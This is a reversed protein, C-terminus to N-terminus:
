YAGRGSVVAFLTKWLIMLDLALSWNEVYFLDYRVSDEWPLDSRGNIQWLGTMGPKVLLRRRVDAAYERVESPLPPRPGVLAMEGRVVNLLQPLEDISYRRIFRGIRTVRPDNRQKFLVGDADNRDRLDVLRDEADIVMSRFKYVTFPEGHRGIRVQKFMAPGRSTLKVLLGTLLLLPAAIALLLMGGLRDIGAKLLRRAGVFEPEEVHLLPLGAVPRISVRPGAVNTLAPAVILQVGTGELSWALRRLEDSDIDRSETVAVTDAGVARVAALISATTGVVPVDGDLTAASLPTQRPLCAGVVTFGAHLERHVTRALDAVREPTGVAVVRHLWHGRSRQRHVLKRVAYRMLVLMVSGLPFAIAVYGRAMDVRTTFGVFAVAAMLRVSANFVRKFEESGTGLFRTEYARSLGLATVWVPVLGLSILLYSLGAVSAPAGHFRVVLAALTASAVVLTDVVVLLRAYHRTWRGAFLASEATSGITDFALPTAAPAIPAVTVPAVRAAEGLGATEATVSV